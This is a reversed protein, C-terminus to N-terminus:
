GSDAIFSTLLYIVSKHSAQLFRFLIHFTGTKYFQGKKVLGSSKLTIVKDIM